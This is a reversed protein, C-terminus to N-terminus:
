QSRRNILVLMNKSKNIKEPDKGNEIYRNLLEKARADMDKVSYDIYYLEGLTFCAELNQPNESIIRELVIKAFGPNNNKTREVMDMLVQDASKDGRARPDTLTDLAKEYMKSELYFQALNNMYNVIESEPALEVAKIFAEEAAETQKLNSQAKGIQVWVPAQKDPKLLSAALQFRELAEAAKGLKLLGTGDNLAAQAKEIAANEIRASIQKKLDAFKKEGPSIEIARDVESMAKELDGAYTLAIALQYHTDPDKPNKQMIESYLAVAVDYQKQKLALEAKYNPVEDILKRANDQIEKQQAPGPKGPIAPLSAFMGGLKEAKELTEIAKDFQTMSFYYSGLTFMAQINSPDSEVAQLLMKEAEAANNAQAAQIGLVLSDAAKQIRAPDEFYLLAEEEGPKFNLTVTEQSARLTL